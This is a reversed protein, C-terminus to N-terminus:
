NTHRQQGLLGWHIKWRLNSFCHNSELLCRRSENKMFYAKLSPKQFFGREVRDKASPYFNEHLQKKVILNATHVYSRGFPKRAMDQNPQAKWSRNPSPRGMQVSSYGLYDSGEYTMGVAPNRPPWYPTISARKRGIFLGGMSVLHDVTATSAFTVVATGKIGKGSSKEPVILDEIKGFVALASFIEAITTRSDIYRLYVKYRDIRIPSLEDVLVLVGRIVLRSRSILESVRPAIRKFTVKIVLNGAEDRFREMGTCSDIEGFISFYELIDSELLTQIWRGSLMFSIM